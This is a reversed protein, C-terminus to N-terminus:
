KKTTLSLVPAATKFIPTLLWSDFTLLSSNENKRPSSTSMTDLKSVPRPTHPTPHPPPLIKRSQQSYLKHTALKLKEWTRNQNILATEKNAIAQAQEDVKATAIQPQVAVIAASILAASLGYFVNQSM